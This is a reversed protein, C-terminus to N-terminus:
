SGRSLLEARRRVANSLKADAAVGELDRKKLLPLLPLVREVPTRPNRCLTQRLPYRTSWRPHRALRALVEPLTSEAAALPALLGETLRPNELLADIVRPSPDTLLRRILGQSGSRALAVKEGVALGPLRDAIRSEAFRRILPHLKTDLGIRLLDPWRLGPLFRLALIQPSRPHRAIEFRIEYASLLRPSGVLREILPGTLFPNRFLHRAAQPDIAALDREVLEALESESAERLRQGLEPEAKEVAM